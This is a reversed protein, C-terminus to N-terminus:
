LFSSFTPIRSPRFSSNASSNSIVNKLFRERYGDICRPDIRRTSCAIGSPLVAWPVRLSAERTLVSGRINTLKVSSSPFRCKTHQVTYETSLVSYVMSNRRRQCFFPLLAVRACHNSWVPRTLCWRFWYTSVHCDVRKRCEGQQGKLGDSDKFSSSGGQPKEELRVDSGGGPSSGRSAILKKDREGQAIGRRCGRQLM